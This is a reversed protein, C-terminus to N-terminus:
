YKSFERRRRRKFSNIQDQTPNTIGQAVLQAKAEAETVVRPDVYAAIEADTKGVLSDIETQSPTYGLGILTSKTAEKAAELEAAAVTAEGLTKIEGYQTSQFNEDGEGKYADIQAQTPNAVGQAILEAKAEAETVVRPDAYTGIQGYQTSQFSGNGQGVYAAIEADSPDTIGQTILEAKAEDITVQRPDVYTEINNLTNAENLEGTYQALEEETFEYGAEAFKAGAEERTTYGENDVANAFDTQISKDEIGFTNLSEQINKAVTSPDAGAEIEALGKNVVENVEPNLNFLADSVFSSGAMVSSTGGGAITGILTNEFLNGEYDRTKDGYTYLSNELAAAQFLEESGESVAEVAGAGAWESVDKVDALLRTSVEKIYTRFAGSASPNIIDVLDDTLKLLEDGTPAKDKFVKAELANGGLGMSIATTGIAVAGQTIAITQAAKEAEAQTYPNGTDPNITTPLLLSDLAEEYAGGMSMLGSEMLDAVVGAKFGAKAGMSTALEESVGRFLAAGKVGSSALGGILFPVVEQGVEVGITDVLFPLPHDKIAGYWAEAKGEIGVAKGTRQAIDKLALKFEPTYSDNGLGAM